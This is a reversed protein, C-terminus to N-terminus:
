PTPCSISPATVDRIGYPLNDNFRITVRYQAEIHAISQNIVTDLTSKNIPLSANSFRDGFDRLFAAQIDNHSMKVRSLDTYSPTVSFYPSLAYAHGDRSLSCTILDGSSVYTTEDSSLAFLDNGVIDYFTMTYQEPMSPINWPTLRVATKTGDNPFGFLDAQRQGTNDFSYLIRTPGFFSTFADKTIADAASANFLCSLALSGATIFSSRRNM